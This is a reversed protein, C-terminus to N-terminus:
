NVDTPFEYFRLQLLKLGNNDYSWFYDEMAEDFLPYREFTGDGDLDVYAYLLERSVNVTKPKGKERVSAEVTITSYISCYETPEGTTPDPATACTRMDASGGPKGLARAFVSYVTIGDNEPDPNPLQFEAPDDTANADLVDFTEGAHLMIKSRGELSVFIRHGNNDDMPSTKDRPVGIINLNYHPGNLNANRGLALLAETDPGTPDDCALVFGSFLVAAAM